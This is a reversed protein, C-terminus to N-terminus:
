PSVTSNILLRMKYIYIPSSKETPKDVKEPTWGPISFAFSLIRTGPKLETLFKQRLNKLVEPMLYCCIVDARGLNEKFFNGRKLKIKAELHSFKVRLKALFHLFWSIEIGRAEKVKFERAAIILVGGDGSGLDYLVKNEDLNALELLRKIDRGQLPV